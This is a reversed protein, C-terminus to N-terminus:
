VIIQIYYYFADCFLASTGSCVSRQASLDAKGSIDAVRVDRSCYATLQRMMTQVQQGLEKTPVLILARVDQERVSQLYCCWVFLLRDPPRFPYLVAPLVVPVTPWVCAVVQQWIQTVINLKTQRIQRRRPSSLQYCRSSQLTGCVSDCLYCATISLTMAPAWWPQMWRWTVMHWLSDFWKNWSVHLFKDSLLAVLTTDVGSVCRVCWWIPVSRNLEGTPWIYKQKIM